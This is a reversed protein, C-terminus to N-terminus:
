IFEVLCMSASNIIDFLYDGSRKAQRVIIM